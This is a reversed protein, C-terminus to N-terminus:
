VRKKRIQLGQELHAITASISIVCGSGCLEDQVCICSGKCDPIAVDVVWRYTIKGKGKCKNCRWNEYRRQIRGNDCEPCPETWTHLLSHSTYNNM